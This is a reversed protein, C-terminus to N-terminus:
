RYRRRQELQHQVRELLRHKDEVVQWLQVVIQRLLAAEEPLHQPDM